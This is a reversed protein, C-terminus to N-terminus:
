SEWFFTAPVHKEYVSFFNKHLNIKMPMPRAGPDTLFSFINIESGLSYINIRVSDSTNISVGKASIPMGNTKFFSM